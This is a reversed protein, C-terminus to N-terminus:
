GPLLQLAKVHDPRLISFHKTDLTALKPENLREVVALVAADVLGIELDAYRELIYRCRAYDAATLTVVIYAGALVDDLLVRPGQHVGRWACLWDFEVVVPAPLILEEDTSALLERCRTHHKDSSDYAAFLPGTDVVLAL